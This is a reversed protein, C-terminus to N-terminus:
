REIAALKIGANALRNPDINTRNMQNLRRQEDATLLVMRYNKRIWRILAAGSTGKM